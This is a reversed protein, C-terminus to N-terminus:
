NDAAGEAIWTAVLEIEEDGLPPRLFPMRAGTLPFPRLKEILYSAEPDGPVIPCWQFLRAETGPEFSDGYAALSYASQPNDGGHCNGALCGASNFLPVIDNAYSVTPGSLPTGTPCDPGEGGDGGPCGTSCFMAAFVLGLAVGVTGKLGKASNSAVTCARKDQKM